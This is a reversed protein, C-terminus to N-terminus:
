ERIKRVTFQSPLEDEGYENVRGSRRSEARLFAAMRVAERRSTFENLDGLPEPSWPADGRRTVVEYRKGM